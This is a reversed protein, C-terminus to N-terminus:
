VIRGIMMDVCGNRVSFVLKGSKGFPDLVYGGHETTNGVGEVCGGYTLEADAKVKAASRARQKWRGGGEKSQFAFGNLGSGGDRGCQFCHNLLREYCLLMVTEEGDGLVDVCLCRRFPKSIDIMVGVRLFEGSCDGSEGVDVDKVVGVMGSLVEGIEITWITKIVGVFADMNVVKNTLVKGVLSLSLREAVATMLCAQLRQVPGETELLNLNACLRANEESGM